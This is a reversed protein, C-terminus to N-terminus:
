RRAGEANMVYKIIAKSGKKILSDAKKKGADGWDLFLTDSDYDDAVAIQYYPQKDQIDLREVKEVYINLRNM